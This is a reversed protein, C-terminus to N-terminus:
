IKIIGKKLLFKLKQESLFNYQYNLQNINQKTEDFLKQIEESKIHSFVLDKAFLLSQKVYFEVLDDEILLQNQAFRWPHILFAIKPAIPLFVPSKGLSFEDKLRPFLFVVPNDSTIFCKQSEIILLHWHYFFLRRALIVYHAVTLLSRIFSKNHPNDPISFVLHKDAELLIQRTEEVEKESRYPEFEKMIELFSSKECAMLKLYMISEDLIQKELFKHVLPNRVALTAVFYSLTWKDKKSLNIELKDIVRKLISPTHNEFTSLIHNNGKSYQEYIDANITYYNDECAVSKIAKHTPLFGKKYSYIHRPPIQYPSNKIEFNKLYFQPVYHDNAM